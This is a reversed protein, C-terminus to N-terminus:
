QRLNRHLGENYLLSMCIQVVFFHTQIQCFCHISGKKNDKRAERAKEAKKM